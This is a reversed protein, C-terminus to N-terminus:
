AIREQHAKGAVRKGFEDYHYCGHGQCVPCVTKLGDRAGRRKPRDRPFRECRSAPVIHGLSGWRTVYGEGECEPCRKSSSM